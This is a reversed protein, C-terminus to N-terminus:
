RNLTNKTYIANSILAYDGISIEEARSNLSIDHSNFIEELESKSIQLAGSLIISNLMKKRRAFFAAKVTSKFTKEDLIGYNKVKNKNIKLKIVSSNVNPAPIFSSNPVDVVRSTDCLYNTTITLVSYEKSKPKSLIRDAVEKQVMIVIEDIKDKYEFLKFIIPTTIYYPLNAIIKVNQYEGMYETIDVDLIDQNVIKLREMQNEFRKNLIEIVDKDIEFALVNAGKNLIYHTLNGLGPGIEIVLDEDTINVANVIEELVNDDILFNQGYAKKAYIQNQSMIQKTIKLTNIKDM